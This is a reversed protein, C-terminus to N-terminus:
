RLEGLLHMVVACAVPGATETRLIREGLSVCSFGARVAMDLEDDSFGSEPGVLLCVRKVPRGEPLVRELSAGTKSPHFLLNISESDIERLYDGLATPLSIDPRYARRCQKIAALAVKELRRQKTAARRPDDVKVKSKESLIPVFRKVGLETGKQIVTDFKYNASLGAALTLRVAPEGFNRVESHVGITVKTKPRVSLIEGRFAAGLGDVVVVQAPPGLRMVNVAHHSEVADLTIVNDKRASPPAYFIPPEM